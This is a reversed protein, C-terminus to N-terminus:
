KGMQCESSTSAYTLRVWLNVCMERDTSAGKLHISPDDASLYLSNKKPISVMYELSTAPGSRIDVADILKTNTIRSLM